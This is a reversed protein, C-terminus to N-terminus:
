KVCTIELMGVRHASAQQQRRQAMQTAMAYTWLPQNMLIAVLPPSRMTGAVGLRHTSGVGLLCGRKCNSCGLVTSLLSM